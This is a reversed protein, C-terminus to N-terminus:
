RSDLRPILVEVTVLKLAAAIPISVLAGIIGLLSGGILVAVVTVIPPVDVAHRMVKPLLVYDETLRFGIYFALTAVAVPVSISLAVLTVIAGGITSGIVPIMDMLAVMLGLAAPYQIGWVLAWIYTSLGAISANLASGLMYRGVQGIIQDGIVRVRDRRSAPVTRYAVAVISPLGALFYITLAVVALTSTLTSLVYKGAGVIGTVANASLGRSSLASQVKSVVHYKAELRGLYTSRDQIQQLVHPIARLLATVETAVPPVIVALFGAVLALVGIAVVLVAGNRRMPVRRQRTLATVIPDLSLALFAALMVIIIVSRAHAIGRVLLYASLAGAALGFAYTFYSRQPLVVTAESTTSEPATSESVAAGSAAADAPASNSAM